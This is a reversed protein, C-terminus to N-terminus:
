DEMYTVEYNITDFDPVYLNILSDFAKQNYISLTSLVTDNQPNRGLLVETGNITDHWYFVEGEVKVNFPTTGNYYKPAFSMAETIMNELDAHEKPYLKEYTIGIIHNNVLSVEVRKDKILIARSFPFDQVKTIEFENTLTDGLKYGYIELQDSTGSAACAFLLTIIVGIAM